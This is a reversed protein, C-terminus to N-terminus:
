IQSETVDLNKYDLYSETIKGEETEPLIEVEDEESSSLEQGDEM